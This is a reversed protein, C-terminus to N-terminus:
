LPWISMLVVGLLGAGVVIGAVATKAKWLYVALLALGFIIAAQLSTVGAGLLDITTAAILGVVGATVGDLFTHVAPNSTLREIYEHGILTFAFAPFFIGLTMAVAGLPGGGFYGVFTSFIILPAPLIGSLAIGDLFQQNTMWGGSVVADNQLFPIATYAGGFTLLGARLGSVLLAPVSMTGPTATGATQTAADTGRGAGNLLYLVVGVVFVVELVIAAFHLNRKVLMYAMGAVVLTIAFHIGLVSSVFAVAGIAFLWRDHLAHGGIRHVARIILAVVAAQFGFFIGQFLPSAIGYTLYFWSLAFMLVFGPLMFGLGALLGGVRGRALYGFYVCLEHAEPGPLVQYVALTRNFRKNSIWQEEDVLERRIMAIQAVPGGWALFGFRLFRLFLQGYTERPPGKAAEEQASTDIQHKVYVM